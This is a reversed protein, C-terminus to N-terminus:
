KAYYEKAGDMDDCIALHKTENKSLPCFFFIKVSKEM